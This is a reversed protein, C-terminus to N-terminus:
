GGIKECPFYVKGVFGKGAPGAIYVDGISYKYVIVTNGDKFNCVSPLIYTGNVFGVAPANAIQIPEHLELTLNFAEGWLTIEELSM